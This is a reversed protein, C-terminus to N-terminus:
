AVTEDHSTSEADDGDRRRTAIALGAVLGVVVSAATYLARDDILTADAADVRVVALQPLTYSSRYQDEITGAMYNAVIAASEASPAEVNYDITFGEYDTVPALIYRGFDQDRTQRIADMTVDGRGLIRVLAVYYVDKEGEAPEGYLELRSTVRYNHPLAPYAVTMALGAAICAAVVAPWRRLMLKLLGGIGLAGGEASEDSGDEAAADGRAPVGRREPAILEVTGLSFLFVSIPLTYSVTVSWMFFLGLAYVAKKWSRTRFFGYMQVLYTSFYVIGGLALVVTLSNSFGLSNMGTTRMIDVAREATFGHGFIPKQLWALYGARLCDLRDSGSATTSLKTSLLHYAVAIGAVLVIAAAAVFTGRAAKRKGMRSWAEKSWPLVVGAGVAWIALVYGTTSFTSLITALLILVVPVRPRKRLCTELLLAACLVYSYMPAEAFIGCNRVLEVGRVTTLQSEFLLWFYGPVPAANGDFSAWSSMVWCNPTIVHAIPGLLWLVLSAAALIAVLTAFASLLWGLLCRQRLEALLLPLLAITGVLIVFSHGGAEANAFWCLCYVALVYAAWVLWRHVVRRGLPRWLWLMFALLLELGAIATQLRRFILREPLLYLAALSNTTLIWGACLLVLAIGLLWSPRAAAEQKQAMHRM